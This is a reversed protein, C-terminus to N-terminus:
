LANRLEEFSPDALVSSLPQALAGTVFSASLFTGAIAHAAVLKICGFNTTTPMVFRAERDIRRSASSPTYLAVPVTRDAGAGIGHTSSSRIHPIRLAAHVM